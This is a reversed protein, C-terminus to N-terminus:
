GQEQQYELSEPLHWGLAMGPGSLHLLLIFFLVRQVLEDGAWATSSGVICHLLAHGLVLVPPLALWLHLGEPVAHTCLLCPPPLLQLPQLLLAAGAASVGLWRDGSSPGASVLVWVSWPLFSDEVTSTHALFQLVQPYYKPRHGSGPLWPNPCSSDYQSGVCGWGYQTVLILYQGTNAM